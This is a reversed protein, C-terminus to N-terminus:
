LVGFVKWIKENKKKSIISFIRFEKKHGESGIGPWPRGKRPSRSWVGSVGCETLRRQVLSQGTASVEVQCCVVTVDMSGTSNPGVIAAVSRGCVWAKIDMIFIIWMFNVASFVNQLLYCQTIYRRSNDCRHPNKRRRNKEKWFELTGTMLRNWHSIEALPYIM